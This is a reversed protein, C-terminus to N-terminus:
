VGSINHHLMLSEFGQCGAQLAPARALQALAGNKEIGNGEVSEIDQRWTKKEITKLCSRFTKSSQITRHLEKTIDGDGM